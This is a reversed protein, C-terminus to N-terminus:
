EDIDEPYILDKSAEGNIHRANEKMEAKNQYGESSAGVIKHNGLNIRQWGHDGNSYKVYVIEDM